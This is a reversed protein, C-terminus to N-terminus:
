WSQRVLIWYEAGYYPRGQLTFTGHIYRNSTLILLCSGVRHARSYEVRIPFHRLLTRNHALILLCLGRGTLGWWRSWKGCDGLEQAERSGVHAPKDALALDLCGLGVPIVPDYHPGLDLSDPFAHRTGLFLPSLFGAGLATM